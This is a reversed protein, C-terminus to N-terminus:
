PAHAGGRRGAQGVVDAPGAPTEEREEEPYVRKAPRWRYREGRLADIITEIKAVSMGDVTESTVGATMSGTNSYIRGYALLFLEPNFLQRYLRELPLHQRGRERIVGLVTAANRM